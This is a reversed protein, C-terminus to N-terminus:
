DQFCELYSILGFKIYRGFLGPYQALRSDGTIINLTACDPLLAEEEAILEDVKRALVRLRELVEAESTLKAPVVANELQSSILPKTEDEGV